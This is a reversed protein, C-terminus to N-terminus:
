SNEEHSLEQGFQLIYGNCDRIAAERMGSDFNELGYNVFRIDKLSRWLADMSDRNNYFSGTFSPGKYLVHENPKAFMIQVNLLM